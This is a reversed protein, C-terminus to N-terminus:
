NVLHIKRLTGLPSLPDAIKYKKWKRIVSGVTLKKEDLRKNITSQNKGTKNVDVIKDRTDKSLEKTKSM